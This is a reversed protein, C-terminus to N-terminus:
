NLRFEETVDVWAKSKTREVTCWSIGNQRVTEAARRLNGYVIRPPGDVYQTGTWRRRRISVKYADSM